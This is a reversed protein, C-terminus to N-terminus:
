HLTASITSSLSNFMDSMNEGFAYASGVVGLFICMAIMAYEISTAGSEDQIWGAFRSKARSYIEDRYPLIM